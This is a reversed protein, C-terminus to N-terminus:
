RILLNWTRIGHPSGCCLTTPINGRLAGCEQYYIIRGYHHYIIIYDKYDALKNKITTCYPCDERSLVIVKETKLPIIIVDDAKTIVKKYESFNTFSISVFYIAIISLVILLASISLELM